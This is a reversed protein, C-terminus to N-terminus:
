QFYVSVTGTSILIFRLHRVQVSPKILSSHCVSHLRSYSSSQETRKLFLQPADCSKRLNVPTKGTFSNPSFVNRGGWCTTRQLKQQSVSCRTHLPDSAGGIVRLFVKFEAVFLRTKQLAPCCESFFYFFFFSLFIFVFCRFRSVCWM